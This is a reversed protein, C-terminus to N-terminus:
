TTKTDNIFQYEFKSQLNLHKSDGEFGIVHSASIGACASNRLMVM